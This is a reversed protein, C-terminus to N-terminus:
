LEIIPDVFVGAEGGVGVTETVLQAQADLMELLAEAQTVMAEMMPAFSSVGETCEPCLQAAAHVSEIVQELSRSAMQMEIIIEGDPDGTEAIMSSMEPVTSIIDVPADMDEGCEFMKLKEENIIKRLQRKTIKM